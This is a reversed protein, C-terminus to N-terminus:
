PGYLGEHLMRPLIGLELNMKIIKRKLIYFQVFKLIHVTMLLSVGLMLNTEYTKIKFRLIPVYLGGGVGLLTKLFLNKKLTFCVPTYMACIIYSASPLPGSIKCETPWIKMSFYFYLIVWSQKQISKLLTKKRKKKILSVFYCDIFSLFFTSFM